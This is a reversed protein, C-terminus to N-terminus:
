ANGPLTVVFRHPANVVFLGDQRRSRTKQVAVNVEFDQAFQHVPDGGDREVFIDISVEVLREAHFVRAKLRRRLPPRVNRRRLVFIGLQVRRHAGHRWHAAAAAFHQASDHM